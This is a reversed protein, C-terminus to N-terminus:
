TSKIIESTKKINENELDIGNNELNFFRIGDKAGGLLITEIINADKPINKNKKNTKIYNFIFKKLKELLKYENNIDSINKENEKEQKTDEKGDAIEMDNVILLLLCKIVSPFNNSKYLVFEFSSDTVNVRFESQARSLISSEKEKPLNMICQIFNSNDIIKPLVETKDNEKHFTAVFPSNKTYACDGEIFTEINKYLKFKESM